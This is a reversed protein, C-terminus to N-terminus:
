HIGPLHAAHIQAHRSMYNKGYGGRKSDPAPQGCDICCGEAKRQAHRCASTRRNYAKRANVNARPM